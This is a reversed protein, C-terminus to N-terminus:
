NLKGFAKVTFINFMKMRKYNRLKAFYKFEAYGETSIPPLFEGGYTFNIMKYTGPKLPLTTKFDLTRIISDAIARIISNGDIGQLLKAINVNTRFLQRMFKTDTESEPVKINADVNLDVIERYLDLTMNLVSNSKPPTIFNFTVNAVEHDFEILM